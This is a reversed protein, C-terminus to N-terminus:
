NLKLFVAAAILGLLIGALVQPVNHVGKVLRAWATLLVIALLAIKELHNTKRGYFIYAAFYAASTMHGSPFGPPNIKDSYDNRSLIDWNNAGKPRTIFFDWSKPYPLRKILDAVLSSAFLGALGLTHFRDLYSIANFGFYFSFAIPLASIFDAIFKVTFNKRDALM